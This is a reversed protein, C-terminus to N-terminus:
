LEILASFVNGPIKSSNYRAILYIHHYSLLLMIFTDKLGFTYTIYILLYLCLWCNSLLRESFNVDFRCKSKWWLCTDSCLLVLIDQLIFFIYIPVIVYVTIITLIIWITLFMIHINFFFYFNCIILISNCKNKIFFVNLQKDHNEREPEVM